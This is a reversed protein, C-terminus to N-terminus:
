LKGEFNYLFIYILFDWKLLVLKTEQNGTNCYTGKVSRLKKRSARAQSVLGLNKDFEDGTSEMVDENLKSWKFETLSDM